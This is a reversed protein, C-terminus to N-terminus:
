PLLSSNFLLSACVLVLRVLNWTGVKSLTLVNNTEELRAIQLTSDRIICHVLYSGTPSSAHGIAQSVQNSSTLTGWRYSQDVKFPRWTGPGKSGILTDSGPHGNPDYQFGSPVAKSADSTYNRFISTFVGNGDVFCSYDGASYANLYETSIRSVVSWTLNAPSTPNSNSKFIIVSSGSRYSNPLDDISHAVDFGYFTASDPTSTLCLFDLRGMRVVATTNTPSLSYPTQSTDLFSHLPPFFFFSSVLALPSLPLLFLSHLPFLSLSTSSSASSFYSRRCVLSGIFAKRSDVLAGAFLSFMCAFPCVFFAANSLELVFQASPSSQAM